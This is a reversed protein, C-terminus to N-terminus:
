QRGLEAAVSASPAKQAISKAKRRLEGSKMKFHSIIEAAAHLDLSKDDEGLWVLLRTANMYILHMIRLQMDKEFLDNQDISIADIWLPAPNPNDRLVLLASHLNPTISFPQGNLKIPVTNESEGWAYSLAEYTPVNPFFPPLDGYIAVPHFKVHNMELEIPDDANGAKISALRIYGKRLSGYQYSASSYKSKHTVNKAYVSKLPDVLIWDVTKFVILASVSRM